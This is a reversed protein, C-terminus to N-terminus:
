TLPINDILRVGDIVVAGFRRGELEEIYDVRMGRAELERRIAAPDSGTRLLQPFAAARARADPSLLANRSSMALGDPERITPCPVVEMDMFFAKTMDRILMLQQFDKEGFYARTPRVLNLLKMVVTLVGEFHGPRHAGCLRSSSVSESVRFRYHDPYVMEPTPTLVYDVHRAQLAACDADLDRPYRELDEPDNFQTPNVFISVVCVDNDAVCREVLSFHGDHLAGMTPVFGISASQVALMRHVERWAEVSGVLTM